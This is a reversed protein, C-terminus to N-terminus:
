QPPGINTAGQPPPPRREPNQNENGRKKEPHGGNNKNGQHKPFPNSFLHNTLFNEDTLTKLFAVLSSKEENTLELRLPQGNEDRLFQNLRPHDQIGSNYHEIVEELDDFRGDHMFPARVEVNRLSPAKFTGDGAGEDDLGLSLGINEPQRSVQAVSLHCADCRIAKGNIGPKGQFLELGNLEEESLATSFDPALNGSFASDFKSEYSVFSRIFQAMAKGIRQQDIVQDGFAEEFLPAYHPLEQLRVVLDELPLGMEIENEIPQLVQEELTNAREDWFFRGRQYYRAQTLGPSHRDTREGEFGRSFRDPDSFAHSQLHCSACSVRRNASLNRDYFLVRGLAAGENTLPNDEPTNDTDFVNEFGSVPLTFHDPLNAEAHAVYGTAEFVEIAPSERLAAAELAVTDEPTASDGGGGGGGCAIGFGISCIFLIKNQHM